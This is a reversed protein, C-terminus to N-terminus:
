CIICQYLLILDETNDIFTNNITSTCLRFPANNNFVLKKNRSNDNNTDTVTTTGKVFIYANSYVCLDSRLMSTKFRLKKNVSYTGGFWKSRGM